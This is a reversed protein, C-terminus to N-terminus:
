AIKSKLVLKKKISSFFMTLFFTKRKSEGVPIYGFSIVKIMNQFSNPFKDYQINQEMNDRIAPITLTRPERDVMHVVTTTTTAVSPPRKYVSSIGSLPRDDDIAALILSIEEELNDDDDSLPNWPETL